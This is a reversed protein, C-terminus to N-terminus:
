ERIPMERWARGDIVAADGGRKNRVGGLQKLFFAVGAAESQDQLDSAWDLSMPRAGPGSEGGVIVWQLDGGDLWQTLDISELLPEASVFKIPAPLRALM